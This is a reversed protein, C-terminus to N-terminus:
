EAELAQKLETAAIIFPIRGGTIPIKDEGRLESLAQDLNLSMSLVVPDIM